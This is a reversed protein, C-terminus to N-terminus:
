LSETTAVNSSSISRLCCQGCRPSVPLMTAWTTLGRSPISSRSPRELFSPRPWQTRSTNAILILRSIAVHENFAERSDIHCLQLTSGSTLELLAEAPGRIRAGFCLECHRRELREEWSLSEVNIAFSQLHIQLTTRVLAMLGYRDHAPRAWIIIAAADHPVHASLSFAVITHILSHLDPNCM